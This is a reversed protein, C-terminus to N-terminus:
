GYGTLRVRKNLPSRAKGTFLIGKEKNPVNKPIGICTSAIGM